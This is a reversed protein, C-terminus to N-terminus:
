LYNLLLSTLRSFGPLFHNPNNETHSSTSILITWHLATLALSQSEENLNFLFFTDLIKCLERFYNDFYIFIVKFFIIMDYNLGFNPAVIKSVKPVTSYKKM